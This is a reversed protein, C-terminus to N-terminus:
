GLLRTPAMGKAFPGDTGRRCGPQNVGIFLGSKPDTIFIGDNVADFIARFREDIGPECARHKENKGPAANRADAM